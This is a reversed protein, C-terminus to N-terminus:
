GGTARTGAPRGHRPDVGPADVKGLQAAGDVHAVSRGRLDTGLLLSAEARCSQLRDFFSRYRRLALRLETTVTAEGRDGQSELKLARGRLGAGAAPALM